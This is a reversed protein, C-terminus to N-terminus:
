VVPDALWAQLAADPLFWEGHAHASAFRQHLAHELDTAFTHLTVLPELWDMGPPSLIHQTWAPRSLEGIRRRLNSTAGIKVWGQRQVVYTAAHTVSLAGGCVQCRRRVWWDEPM